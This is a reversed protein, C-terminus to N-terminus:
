QVYGLARLQQERLRREQETITETPEEYPRQVPSSVLPNGWAVIGLPNEMEGEAETAVCMTVWKYAFRGLRMNRGRWPSESEPNLSRDLITEPLGEGDDVTLRFRAELWRGRLRQEDIGFEVWLAAGPPILLKRCENDTRLLRRSYGAVERTVFDETLAFHYLDVDVFPRLDRQVRVGTEVPNPLAALQPCHDYPLREPRMPMHPPVWEWVIEGAPTIEFIRGGTIEFIRGGHSSTIVYNEGPLKQVAGAVSSFFFKSGYEWEVEGSIPDIAQVLSRRYGNRNHRGNNFLLIRGAGPEGEPVMSAEHQYDLDKSYQWVVESSRKDIIFVTNLHRASVLINGPRFREDGSDFWRNPPLEHISNFHTPDKRERDWTPLEDVHDMSRWAWVVRGKRDVEHLYGTHTEKDRALVLYHGNALEILDHHPFDEEVPLRYYSWLKGYWDYHKILNDTGIVALNGRRDLRVRGVARVDPWLHVIRSNMDIIMPVRRRYLILTYGGASADPRYQRVWSTPDLDPLSLLRDDPEIAEEIAVLEAELRREDRAKAQVLVLTIVVAAAAFLAVRRLVARGGTPGQSETKM